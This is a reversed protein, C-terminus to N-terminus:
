LFCKAIMTSLYIMVNTSEFAKLLLLSCLPLWGGSVQQVPFCFVGVGVGRVKLRSEYHAKM